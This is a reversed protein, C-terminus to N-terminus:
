EAQDGEPPAEPHRLGTRRALGRIAWDDETVMPAPVDAVAEAAGTTLAGVKASVEPRALGAEVLPTGWYMPAGDEPAVRVQREM